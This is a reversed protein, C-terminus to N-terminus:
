TFLKRSCCRGRWAVIHRKWWSCNPEDPFSEMAAKMYEIRKFRKQMVEREREMCWGVVGYSGLRKAFWEKVQFDLPSNLYDFYIRQQQENEQKIWHLYDPEHSPCLKEM